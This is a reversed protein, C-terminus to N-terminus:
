EDQYRMLQIATTSAVEYGFAQELGEFASYEAIRNRVKERMDVLQYIEAPYFLSQSVLTDHTPFLVCVRDDVDPGLCVQPFKIEDSYVIEYSDDPAFLKRMMSVQREPLSTAADYVFDFLLEDDELTAAKNLPQGRYAMLLINTAVNQRLYVDERLLTLIKQQEDVLSALEEESLDEKPEQLKKVALDATERGYLISHTALAYSLISETGRLLRVSIRPSWTEEAVDALFEEPREYFNGQSTDWIDATRSAVMLWDALQLVQNASVPMSILNKANEQPNACLLSYYGFGANTIMGIQDNERRCDLNSITRDSSFSSTPTASLVFTAAWSSKGESITQEHLALVTAYHGELFNRLQSQYPGFREREEVSLGEPLQRDVAFRLSLFNGFVDSARLSTIEEDAEKVCDQSDIRSQVLTFVEKIGVFDGFQPYSYKDKGRVDISHAEDFLAFCAKWKDWANMRSLESVIEVEYAVAGLQSRILENQQTIQESLQGIAKVIKQQNELILDLKKNIQSFEAELFRMMQRHREAAADRKKGFVGSVAAIGGLWNGSAFQQVAANAVGSYNIVDNVFENEIGFNSAITGLAQIDATFSSFEAIQEQIKAESEFQSILANKADASDCQPMGEPCAFRDKLFGSKLAAAKEASSMRSFAFDSVFGLQEGQTKLVTNVEVMQEQLVDVDRELNGFRVEQEEFKELVQSKFELTEGIFQTLKTDLEDVQDGLEGIEAWQAKDSNALTDVLVDEAMQKAADSDQNNLFERVKDVKNLSAVIEESSRGRFSELSSVNAAVLLAEKQSYIFEASNRVARDRLSGFTTDIAMDTAASVFGLALLGVGSSAFGIEVLGKVMETNSQVLDLGTMTSKTNRVNNQIDRLVAATKADFAVSPPEPPDELDNLVARTLGIGLKLAPVNAKNWDPDKTQAFASQLMSTCALAFFVWLIYKAKRIVAM